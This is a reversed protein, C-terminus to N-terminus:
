GRRGITLAGQDVESVAGECIFVGSPFFRFV